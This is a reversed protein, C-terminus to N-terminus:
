AAGHGKRGVLAHNGVVAFRLRKVGRRKKMREGDRVHTRAVLARRNLEAIGVFCLLLDQPHRRPAPVDHEASLAVISAFDLRRSKVRPIDTAANAAAAALSPQLSAGIASGLAPKACALEGTATGM